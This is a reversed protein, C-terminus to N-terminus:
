TSAATTPVLVAELRGRRERRRCAALDEDGLALLDWAVFCAPSEAALMKVPGAPHIRLLLADFDLGTPCAIVIEGDVVCRGTPSSPVTPWSPSTATSRSSTAVKRTSRAGRSCSRM